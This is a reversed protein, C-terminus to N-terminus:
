SVFGTNPSVTITGGSTSISVASSGPSGYGDFTVTIPTGSITLTPLTVTNEEGPLKVLNSRGTTDPASGKFLWYSNSSEFYLGWRTDTNMARTQAFRLHSRVVDLESTQRISTTSTGRSVVVAGIVAMIILVCVIEILAFGKRHSGVLAHKVIRNFM